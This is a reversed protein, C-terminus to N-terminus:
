QENFVYCRSTSTVYGAPQQCNLMTELQCLLKTRQRGNIAGDLTTLSEGGNNRSTSGVDFHFIPLSGSLKTAGVGAGTPAGLKECLNPLGLNEPHNKWRLLPGSPAHSAPSGSAECLSIRSCYFLRLRDGARYTYLSPIRVRAARPNPTGLEQPPSPAKPARAAQPPWQRAERAVNDTNVKITM